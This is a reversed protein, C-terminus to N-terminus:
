LPRDPHRAKRHHPKRYDTVTALLTERRRQLEQLYERRDQIARIQVEDLGGTAEKRYRAIFPVTGGDDLLQAVALVNARPLTLEEAIMPVADFTETELM